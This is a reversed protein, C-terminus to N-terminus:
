IIASTEEEEDTESESDNFDDEESVPKIEDGPATKIEPEAFIKKYAKASKGELVFGRTRAVSIQSTRETLVSFADILDDVELHSNLFNFAIRRTRYQQIHSGKQNKEVLTLLVTYQSKLAYLERRLEDRAKGEPLVNCVNLLCRYCATFLKAKEISDTTFLFYREFDSRETNKLVLQSIQTLDEADFAELHIM